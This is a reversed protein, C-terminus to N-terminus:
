GVSVGGLAILRTAHRRWGPSELLYVALPIYIPWIVQSFTSYGQTLLGTLCNQRQPLTLWLAGELLQQVGFCLPIFAYPLDAVRRTRRVTAAGVALLAAGASFSALASFCMNGRNDFHQSQRDTHQRV